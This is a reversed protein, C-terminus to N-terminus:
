LDGFCLNFQNVTLHSTQMGQGLSFDATFLRLFKNWKYLATKFLNKANFRFNGRFYLAHRTFYEKLLKPRRVKINKFIRNIAFIFMFMEFNLCYLIM